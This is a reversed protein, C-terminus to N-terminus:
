AIGFGISKWVDYCANGLEYRLPVREETSVKMETIASEAIENGDILLKRFQSKGSLATVISVASRGHLMNNSVNLEEM